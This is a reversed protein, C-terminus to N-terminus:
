GAEAAAKMGAAELEVYHQVRSGLLLDAVRALPGGSEAALELRTRGEGEARIVHTGTLTMGATRATWTFSELPVLETVTWVMPRLKPQVVRASSSVRLPGSELREVSTM